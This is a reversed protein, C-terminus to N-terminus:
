TGTDVLGYGTMGPPACRFRAFAEQWSPSDSNGIGGGARRLTEELHLGQWLYMGCYRCLVSCSRRWDHDTAPLSQEGIDFGFVRDIAGCIPHPYYGTPTLGIGFHVPFACGASFDHGAFGPLDLPAISIPQHHSQDSGAKQSDRIAVVGRYRRLVERTAETYGNSCLYVQGAPFLRAKHELLMSLIEDLWPNLTAEGGELLIMEWTRRAALSEGVFRAVQEPRMHVQAPAQQEGCLRNCGTCNLTCDTTLDIIMRGPHPRFPHPDGVLPFVRDEGRGHLFWHELAPWRSSVGKGALEPYISLYRRWDFRAMRRLAEFM